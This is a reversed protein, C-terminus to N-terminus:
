LCQVERVIKEVERSKNGAAIAVIRAARRARVALYRMVHAAQPPKSGETTNRAFSMSSTAHRM